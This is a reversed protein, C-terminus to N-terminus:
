FTYENLGKCMMSSERQVYHYMADPILVAEKCKKCIESISNKRYIKCWCPQKREGLLYVSLVENNELVMGQRLNTVIYINRNDYPLDYLHQVM